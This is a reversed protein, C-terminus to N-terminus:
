QRNANDQSGFLGALRGIPWAVLGQVAHRAPKTVRRLWGPKKKKRREEFPMEPIGLRQGIARVAGADRDYAHVIPCVDGASNLISNGTVIHRSSGNSRMTMVHDGCEHLVVKQLLGTHIICNHIGQDLPRRKGEDSLSELANGMATLYSMIYNRSVITTGCCIVSKQKLQKLTEDGFSQRIWEQNKKCDAIRRAELYGNVGEGYKSFPDSQFVVDRIDTFLVADPLDGSKALSGFYDRFALFRANVLLQPHYQSPELEITEVGNAHLYSITDATVNNVFLVCKGDFGSQNLSKFFPAIANSDYNWVMGVIM